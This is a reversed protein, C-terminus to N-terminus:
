SPEMETRHSPEEKVGVLSTDWCSLEARCPRQAWRAAQVLGHRSLAHALGTHLGAPAGSAEQECFVKTRSGRGQWRGAPSSPSLFSTEQPADM